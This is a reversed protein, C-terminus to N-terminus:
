ECVLLGRAPLAGGCIEKYIGTKSAAESGYTKAFRALHEDGTPFDYSQIGSLPGCDGPAFGPSEGAIIRLFETLNESDAKQEKNSKCVIQACAGGGLREIVIV